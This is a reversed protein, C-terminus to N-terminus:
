LYKSRPPPSSIINSIASSVILFPAAFLISAAAGYRRSSLYARVAEYHIASLRYMLNFRPSVRRSKLEPAFREAIITCCQLRRATQSMISDPLVHYRSLIDDFVVFKTHLGNLLTLWLDFDQGNPLNTDFGGAEIIAQRRAVVTCTDLYGKRYLTIYPDRYERFRRACDNLSEVGNDSIWSNHAVLIYEGDELVALSREIKLPLWEDDADLFALVPQTAECIARNRAAGAGANLQRIITLQTEGLIKACSEAVECTEDDSGDDVM